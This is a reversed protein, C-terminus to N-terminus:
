PLKSKAVHALLDSVSVHLVETFPAPYLGMLQFRDAGNIGAARVQVLVEGTGPTPDAHEQWRLSGDVITVAHM